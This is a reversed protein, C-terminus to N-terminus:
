RVSMLFRNPPPLSHAPPPDTSIGPRASSVTTLIVSRNCRPPPNLFFFCIRRACFASLIVSVNKTQYISLIRRHSQSRLLPPLGGCELPFSPANQPSPRTPTNVCILHLNKRDPLRIRQRLHGPASRSRSHRPPFLQLRHPRPHRRLTGCRHHRPSRRHRSRRRSPQC